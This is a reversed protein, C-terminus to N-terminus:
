ATSDAPISVSLRTGNGPGSLITLIGGLDEVRERMGILGLGRDGRRELAASVDFGQGDDRVFIRVTPGDVSVVIEVTKAHAHRAANNLAEQAIRYTATEVEPSLRQEPAAVSIALGTREGV